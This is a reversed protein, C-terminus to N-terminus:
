FLSPTEIEFRKGSTWLRPMCVCLCVSVCVCLCMVVAYPMICHTANRMFVSDARRKQSSVANNFPLMCKDCLLGCFFTKLACIVPGSDNVASERNVKNIYIKGFGKVRDDM